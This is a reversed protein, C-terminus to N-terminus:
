IAPNTSIRQFQRLGFPVLDYDSILSTFTGLPLERQELHIRWPGRWHSASFAFCIWLGDDDLRWTFPIREVDSFLLGSGDSAFSIRTERQPVQYGHDFGWEGILNNQDALTKSVPVDMDVSFNAM